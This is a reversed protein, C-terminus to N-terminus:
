LFLNDDIDSLECHLDDLANSFDEHMPQITESYFNEHKQQLEAFFGPSDKMYSPIKDYVTKWYSDWSLLKEVEGLKDLVCTQKQIRTDLFASVQLKKDYGSLIHEKEHIEQKYTDCQKQMQLTEKKLDNYKRTEQQVKFEMLELGRKDTRPAPVENIELNHQKCISIWLDRCAASYPQKANNFKSVPEDPNPPQFGLLDLASNKQIFAEGHENVGLFIKREHIHPTSEDLHLAASLVKIHSGYRKNHEVRYENYIQMLEEGSVPCNEKNGIQFIIEEPQTKKSKYFDLATRNRFSQRRAANREAQGSLSDKLYVDYLALELKQTNSLSSYKENGQYKKDMSDFFRSQSSYLEQLETASYFKGNVFYHNSGSRSRDIRSDQNESDLPFERFNHKATGKGSHTSTRVLM